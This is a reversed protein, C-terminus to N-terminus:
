NLLSRRIFLHSLSFSSRHCRFLCSFSLSYNLGFSWRSISEGTGKLDVHKSIAVALPRNWCAIYDTTWWMTTQLTVYFNSSTAMTTLIKSLNLSVIISKNIYEENAWDVLREVITWVSRNWILCITSNSSTGVKTPLLMRMRIHLVLISDIPVM